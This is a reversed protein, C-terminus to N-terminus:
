NAAIESASNEKWSLLWKTNRAFYVEYQQADKLSHWVEGTTLLEPNFFQHKDIKICYYDSGRLRKKRYKKIVGSSRVPKQFYLDRSYMWLFATIMVVSSILIIWGVARFFVEMTTTGDTQIFGIAVPIAILGIVAVRLILQSLLFRQQAKSVRGRQNDEFSSVMM